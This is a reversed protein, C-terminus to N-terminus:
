MNTLMCMYKYMSSTVHIEYWKLQFRTQPESCRYLIYMIEWHMFNWHSYTSLSRGDPSLYRNHDQPHDRQRRMSSHRSECTLSGNFNRPKLSLVHLIASVGWSAVMNMQLHNWITWRQRPICELNPSVMGNQLRIYSNSSANTIQAILFVKLHQSPVSVRRYLASIACHPTLIPLVAVCPLSPAHGCCSLCRHLSTIPGHCCCLSPCSPALYCSPMAPNLHLFAAATLKNLLIGTPLFYGWRCFTRMIERQLTKWILYITLSDAYPGASPPMARFRHHSLGMMISCMMSYDYRKDLEGVLGGGSPTASLIRILHTFLVKWVGLKVKHM